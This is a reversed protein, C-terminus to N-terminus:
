RRRRGAALAGFGLLAISGPAPVFFASGSYSGESRWWMAPLMNQDLAVGMGGDSQLFTLTFAADDPDVSDGTFLGYDPINPGHWTYTVSSGAGDAGFIAGSSYWSAAGGLATLSGGEVVASLVLAGFADRFEFSGDLSYAHIFNGGGSPISGLHAIEFAANFEISLTIPAGPGNTDDILLTLPESPDMADGVFGGTGMFTFSTHDVDSAFSFLSANAATALGALAALSTTIRNM